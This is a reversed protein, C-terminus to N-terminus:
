ERVGVFKYFGEYRGTRAIELLEDYIKSILEPTADRGGLGYVYGLVIPRDALDYLSSRVELFVPSGVAGFPGSRDMVGVVKVDKLIRRIQEYPFPRFTRIRVMGVKLGRGRLKKVVNRVTGATSGLVVVAVEADEMEYAVVHGDGYYRGSLEGYEKNVKSIVKRANELGEHQQVKHEFYYDYLDLPGFTIPHDPDLKLPTKGGLYPVEIEAPVRYGIYEDVARDPLVSVNQLTHSIFFGDLNVMVPTLVQHDEGIKYAQITTDYAEQADETFIQIWGADRAGMADSHDCHINIPGSLARNVVAMVVPLRLSSTIYLVEWMFALGNASTATFARAGAAEAGVCASLASHESEVPIFEAELEGNYVYESLREVIITQPTIPYAAIVDVNSQKVAYAVAEDGNLAKVEQTLTYM